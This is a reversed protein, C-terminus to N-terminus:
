VGRKNWTPGADRIIHCHQTLTSGVQRVGPYSKDRKECLSRHMRKQFSAFSLNFLVHDGDLLHSFVYRPIAYYPFIEM